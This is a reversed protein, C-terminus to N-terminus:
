SGDSLYVRVLHNDFFRRSREIRIERSLGPAKSSHHPEDYWCLLYGLPIRYLAGSPYEVLLDEASVSSRSFTSFGQAVSTRDRIKGDKRLVASAPDKERLLDLFKM